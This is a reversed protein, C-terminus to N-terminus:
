DFAGVGPDKKGPKKGDKKVPDLAFEFVQEAEARLSRSMEKHGALKFTLTRTEGKPWDIALPTNGITVGNETVEAGDPTTKLTVKV